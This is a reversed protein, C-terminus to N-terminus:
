HTALRRSLRLVNAVYTYSHNYAYLAAPWNAPAGSAKLYAAMSPIADAPDYRNGLIRRHGDVCRNCLEDPNDGSKYVRDGFPDILANLDLAVHREAVPQDLHEAADRGQLQRRFGSWRGLSDGAGSSKPCVPHNPRSSGHDKLM